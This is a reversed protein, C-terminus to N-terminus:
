CIIDFIQPSKTFVHVLKNKKGGVATVVQTQEYNIEIRADSEGFGWIRASKPEM